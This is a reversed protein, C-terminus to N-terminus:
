FQSDLLADPSKIEEGVAPFNFPSYANTRLGKQKLGLNIDIPRTTEM